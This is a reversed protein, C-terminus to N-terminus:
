LQTKRQKSTIWTLEQLLMKESAEYKIDSMPNGFSSLIELQYADNRADEFVWAQSNCKGVHLLQLTISDILIQREM